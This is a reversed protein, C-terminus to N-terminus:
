AALVEAYASELEATPDGFREHVVRVNREAYRRRREPERALRLLAATVATVDRVPVVEAGEDQGVWEDISAAAGAVIPLGSAMSELLSAPSSDSSALTIAIDAAALSRALEEPPITQIAVLEELGLEAILAEIEPRTPGARAALLLRLQPEEAAASAFARVVVDLNTDPRFNRLSAIVLASEPWGLALWRARDAREPAFEEIDAHWLIRRIRGPDAGLQVLGEALPTSNVVFIRGSAVATRAWREPRGGQRAHVLVDSGWPTVVLPQLGARATWYGYPLLYHAHVVDPQIQEGLQALAHRIRLRRLGRLRMLRGQDQLIHLEIGDLEGPRLDTRTTAVHVEHGERALRQAWRALHRSRANGIGLIRLRRPVV